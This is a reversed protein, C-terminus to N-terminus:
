AADTGRAENGAGTRVRELEHALLPGLFAAYAELGPPRRRKLGEFGLALFGIPHRGADRLPVMHVAGAAAAAGEPPGDLPVTIGPRSAAGLRRLQGGATVWLAAWEADFDDIMARTARAGLEQCDSGVLCRAM